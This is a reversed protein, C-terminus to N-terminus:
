PSIAGRVVSEEREPEKELVLIADLDTQIREFAGPVPVELLEEVPVGDDILLIFEGPCMQGDRRVVADEASEAQVEAAADNRRAADGLAEVLIGVDRLIGVNSLHIQDGLEATVIM